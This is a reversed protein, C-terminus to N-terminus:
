GMRCGPSSAEFLGFPPQKKTKGVDSNARNISWSSARKPRMTRIRCQQASLHDDFDLIHFNAHNGSFTNGMSKSGRGWGAM